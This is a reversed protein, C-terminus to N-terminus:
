LFQCLFLQIIKYNMFSLFLQVFFGNPAQCYPLIPTKTLEIIWFNFLLCKTQRLPFSLFLKVCIGPRVCSMVTHNNLNEMWVYCLFTFFCWLIHPLKGIKCLKKDYKRILRAQPCTSTPVHGCTRFEIHNFFFQALSLSPM